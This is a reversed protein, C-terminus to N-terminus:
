YNTLFLLFYMIIRANSDYIVVGNCEYIFQPISHTQCFSLPVTPQAIPESDQVDDEFSSYQSSNSISSDLYPTPDPKQLNTSLLNTNIDEM